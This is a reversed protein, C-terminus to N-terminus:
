SRFGLSTQTIKCAMTTMKMWSYQPAPLRMPTPQQKLNSILALCQRSGIPMKPLQFNRYKSPLCSSIVSIPSAILHRSSKTQGTYKTLRMVILLGPRKHKLGEENRLIELPRVGVIHNPGNSDTCLVSLWFKIPWLFCTRYMAVRGGFSPCGRYSIQTRQFRHLCPVSLWFIIPWPFWTRYKAVQGPVDSIYFTDTFRQWNGDKLPFGARKWMMSFLPYMRCWSQAEWNEM